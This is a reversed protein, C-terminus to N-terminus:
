NVCMASGIATVLAVVKGVDGVPAVASDDVPNTTAEDLSDLMEGMATVSEADATGGHVREYFTKGFLIFSLRDGAPFAGYLDSIAAYEPTSQDGAWAAAFVEGIEATLNLKNTVHAGTSLELSREGPLRAQSQQIVQQKPQSLKAMSFGTANFMMAVTEEGTCGSALDSDDTTEGSNEEENTTEETEEVATPDVPTGDDDKKDKRGCSAVVLSAITMAIGTKLVNRM